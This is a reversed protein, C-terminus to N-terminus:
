QKNLRANYVRKAAVPIEITKFGKAKIILTKAEEPMTFKYEGKANTWAEAATDKVRVSAGLIPQGTNDAIVGTIQNPDAKPKASALVASVYKLSATASANGPDLALIKNDYETVKSYEEQQMYLAVMSNLAKLVFDKNKPDLDIMRSYYKRASEYDKSQIANYGLYRLADYIEDEYKISDTAAKSLLAIFKSKALGLKSDPDKASANNAIWLYANIQDPYKRIMENFIEEAKDYDKGQYYARGIHLYNEATSKGKAILRKWTDAAKSYQRNIYYANAKEEILNVDEEGFSIAKEYADYAKLLASECGDIKERIDQVKATLKAEDEKGKEKAAGKPSENDSRIRSLAANTNDLEAKLGPLNKNNKMLIRAYYVYDKKIIRNAPLSAFLQDMYVLAQQYNGKEYCSYGAIRNLYTRSKDVNFIEEVNKIVGDYDRAYFLANVYRIQAPINKNTLKLYMEFYQKSEKFRGAMSYLQGLERYAPAYNANLAIAQEFYPIAAMLNRAKFYINGIKMNATPSKTDIDQAKNYNRIAQSADNVLLYIDGAIIYIKANQQDITLAERIEPMARTTDVRDFIIYSEALKALTYAYDEPNKIKSVRKYPPLFSKAKLRMQEATPQDGALSAVRALGIYNLPDNADLSIGSEFYKKAETTIEDLSNSISDSFFNLLTNEGLRYYVRSTPNKQSVIQLISDALDYRENNSATIAKNLELTQANVVSIAILTLIAITLSVKNFSQTKM